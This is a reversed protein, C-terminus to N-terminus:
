CAGVLLRYVSAGMGIEEDSSLDAVALLIPATEVAAAAMDCLETLSVIANRPDMTHATM